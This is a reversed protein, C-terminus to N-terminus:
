STTKRRLYTKLRRNRSRMNNLRGEYRSRYEIMEDVDCTMMYGMPSSVVLFNSNDAYSEERMEAACYSVYAPTAWDRKLKRSVWIAIRHATMYEGVHQALCERILTKITPKANM